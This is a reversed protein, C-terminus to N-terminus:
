LGSLGPLMALAMTAANASAHQLMSAGLGLRQRTYGLMIGAWLQPLVLLATLASADGYNLVHVGAFAFAMIWYIAPYAWRFIPPTRRKRLFIWGALAVVLLAGLIAVAALAPLGRSIAALAVMAPIACGMLWLTRPRGSQWGRFLMEELVPAIVVTIPLLWNQPIKDFADPPALGLTKQVLATVPLTLALLVFVHVAYLVGLTQWSAARRLSWPDLVAPSILFRALDTLVQRPGAFHPANITNM